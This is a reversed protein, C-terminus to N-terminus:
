RACYSQGYGHVKNQSSGFQRRLDDAGVPKNGDEVAFRKLTPVDAALSAVAARTPILGAALPNHVLARNDAALINWAVAADDNGVFLEAIKLDPELHVVVESRVATQKQAARLVAFSPLRHDVVM